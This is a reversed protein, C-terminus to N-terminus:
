VNLALYSAHPLTFDKLLIVGAALSSQAVESQMNMGAAEGHENHPVPPVCTCHLTEKGLGQAHHRDM